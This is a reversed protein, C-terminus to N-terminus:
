EFGLLAQNGVVLLTLIVESTEIFIELREDVYMEDMLGVRLDNSFYEPRLVWESRIRFADRLSLERHNLIFLFNRWLM